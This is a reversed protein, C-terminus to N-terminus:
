QIHSIQDFNSTKKRILFSNKHYYRYNSNDKVKYKLLKFGSLVHMKIKMDIRKLIAVFKFYGCFSLYVGWFKYQTRIM